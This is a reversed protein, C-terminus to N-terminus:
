RVEFEVLEEGYKNFPRPSYDEYTAKVWRKVEPVYWYVSRATGAVSVDLRQFSGNVEIKLARFRGAPVVIDEWGEVKATREHAVHMAGERPRRLEYDARYTGGVKLPFKFLGSNSKFIAGDHTSIANWESTWTADTQSEGPQPDSTTRRGLLSAAQPSRDKVLITSHIVDKQAFTVRLEYTEVAANTWHDMRRYVWRDGAAVEPKAVLGESQADCLGPFACWYVIAALTFRRATAPM